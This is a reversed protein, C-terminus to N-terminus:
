VMWGVYGRLVGYQLIRGENIEAMLAMRAM